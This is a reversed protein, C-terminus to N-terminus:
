FDGLLPHSLGFVCIFVILFATIPKARVFLHDLLEGLREVGERGAVRKDLLNGANKTLKGKASETVILCHHTAVGIIVPQGHNSHHVGAAAITSIGASRPDTLPTQWRGTGGCEGVRQASQLLRGTQRIADSNTRVEYARIGILLSQDREDLVIPVRRHLLHCLLQLDSSM